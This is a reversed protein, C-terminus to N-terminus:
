SDWTNYYVHHICALSKVSKCPLCTHKECSNECDKTLLVREQQELTFGLCSNETTFSSNQCTTFLCTAIGHASLACQCHLQALSWPLTRMRKLRLLVSEWVHGCACVREGGGRCGGKAGFGQGGGAGGGRWRAATPHLWASQLSIVRCVICPFLTHGTCTHTRAGRSGGEAYWQRHGRSSFPGSPQLCHLACGVAAAM